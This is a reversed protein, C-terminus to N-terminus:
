WPRHETESNTIGKGLLHKSLREKSELRSRFNMPLSKIARLAQMFVM